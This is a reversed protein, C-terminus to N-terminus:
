YLLTGYLEFSGIVLYYRDNWTKGIQRFRIFRFSETKQNLTQFSCIQNGKKLGSFNNQKDLIKWTNSDNSGELVWFKPNYSSFVSKITYNSPIVRCEKFDFCLWSNAEDISYFFKNDDEFISVNQPIERDDRVSSSLINIKNEIKNNSISKLYNIIGNWNQHPTYEFSIENTPISNFQEIVIKNPMNQNEINDREKKINIQKKYRNKYYKKNNTTHKSLRESISKWIYYNIDNIDYIEIFEDITNPEVNSFVVYCYLNSYKKDKSYISNLFHLLQDENKIMLKQNSLIEELINPELKSIEEFKEDILEGFHKAFYNILKDKKQNILGYKEYEDLITFINENTIKTQDNPFVIKFSEYGLKSIIERIFPIEDKPIENKDFNILKLFNSFQGNQQTNIIYKNITPDILHMKCIESSLLEAILRSTEFSQGNIIFTFKDYTNYPIRQINTLKLQLKAKNEM